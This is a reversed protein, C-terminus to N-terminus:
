ALGLERPHPRRRLRDRDRLDPRRDARIGAGRTALSVVVAVLASVITILVSFYQFYINNVIWLFSGKPRLRERLRRPGAHGAHRRGHPLPRARLRRDDGVPLGACNLRKWFVGLFFVVFMPPALYGQVAQLYNYLGHAGQIVPLWALAILVMVSTAIRGTRM